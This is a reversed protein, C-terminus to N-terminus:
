IIGQFDDISEIVASNQYIVASNDTTKTFWGKIRSGINQLMGPAGSTQKKARKAM